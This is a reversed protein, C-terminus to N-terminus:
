SVGNPPTRSKRYEEDLRRRAEAAMKEERRRGVQNSKYIWLALLALWVGVVILVTRM